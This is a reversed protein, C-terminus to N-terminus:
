GVPPPLEDPTLGALETIREWLVAAKEESVETNPLYATPRPRRDLWFDNAGITSTPQACLWLITDAGEDPTRLLPQMIKDFGPLADSVGPTAAWGPHMAHVAIDPALRRSWEVGLAIQMRKARAYAITGKYERENNLDSLSVGQSYMGGSSVTVIRADDGARLAPLALATMLFPAVVHGLLTREIGDVEARDNHLAGANHVLADLPEGDALEAGATRVSALDELDAVVTRHDGPLEDVLAELKAPNRAILTLDAGKTAMEIAAARGLGSTPGTIAIRRGSLEIPEWDFVRRRITPGIRTFSPVILRDLLGDATSRINM